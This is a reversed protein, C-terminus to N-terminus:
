QQQFRFLLDMDQRTGKLRVWLHDRAASFRAEDAEIQLAYNRVV